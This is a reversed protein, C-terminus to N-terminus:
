IGKVTIFTMFAFYLILWFLTDNLIQFEFEAINNYPFLTFFSWHAVNFGSRSTSSLVPHFLM